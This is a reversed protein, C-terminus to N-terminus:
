WRINQKEGDVEWQGKNFLESNYELNGKTKTINVISIGNAKHIMKLLNREAFLVVIFLASVHVREERSKTDEKVVNRKWM